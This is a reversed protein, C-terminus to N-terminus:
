KLTYLDRLMIYDARGLYHHRGIDCRGAGGGMVQDRNKEPTESEPDNDYLDDLGVAHGMEHMILNTLSYKCPQGKGPQYVDRGAYYDYFKQMRIDSEIAQEMKGAKTNFVEDDDSRTTACGYATIEFCKTGDVFDVTSKEDRHDAASYGGDGKYEQNFGGFLDKDCWNSGFDWRTAADRVRQIFRNEKRTTNAQSPLSSRIVYFEMRTNFWTHDLYDKDRGTSCATPGPQAKVRAALSDSTM